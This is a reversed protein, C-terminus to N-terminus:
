FKSQTIKVLHDGSCFNPVGPTCVFALYEFLSCTFPHYNVLLGPGTWFCTLATFNSQYINLPLIQTTFNLLFNSCFIQASFNSHYFQAAFNLMFISHCFKFILIQTVFNTDLIYFKVLFSARFFDVPKPYLAPASHLGSIYVILNM